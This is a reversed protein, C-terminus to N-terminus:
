VDLNRVELAHKQIFKKRPDVQDGMLVTFIEDSYVADEISVQLLRRKKADMTTEWLQEPNMEGLGKYRQIGLGKRGANMIHELLNESGEIESETGQTRVQYPSGGIERIVTFLKILEQYDPSSLLEHDLTFRVQQGLRRFELKVKFSSHEPDEQIEAGLEVEKRLRKIAEELSEREKLTHADFGM